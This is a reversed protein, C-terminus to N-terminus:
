HATGRHVVLCPSIDTVCQSSLLMESRCSSTRALGHSIWHGPEERFNDPWLHAHEPFAFRGALNVPSRATNGLDFAESPRFHNCAAPIRRRALAKFIPLMRSMCSDSSLSKVASSSEPPATLRAPLSSAPRPPYQTCDAPALAPSLVSTSQVRDSSPPLISFVCTNRVTTRM